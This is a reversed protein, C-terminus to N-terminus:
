VRATGIRSAAVLGLLSLGLLSLTTGGDPVTLTADFSTKVKSGAGHTITVKDTLSYPGVAGTVTGIDTGSFAGSPFALSTLLTTEDFLGTGTFTEYTVSGATVGGIEAVTYTGTPGFGTDSFWITLTSSAASTSSASFDHLYLYPDTASGDEPKTIGFLDLKWVGLTGVYKVIGATTDSDSLSGDAIVLTTIGDSIKISSATASGPAALALVTAGCSILNKLRMTKTELLSLV